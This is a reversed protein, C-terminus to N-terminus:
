FNRKIGAKPFSKNADTYGVRNQTMKNENEKAQRMIIYLDHSSIKGEDMAKQAQALIQRAYEGM